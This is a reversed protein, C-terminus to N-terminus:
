QLSVRSLQCDPTDQGRMPLSEPTTQGSRVQMSTGDEDPESMGAEM